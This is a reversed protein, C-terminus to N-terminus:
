YMFERISVLMIPLLMYAAFPLGRNKTQKKHVTLMDGVIMILATIACMLWALSVCLILKTGELYCACTATFIADGIGIAGGTLLSMLLIAAGPLMAKAVSWVGRGAIVGLALGMLAFTVSAKLSIQRLRVDRFASLLAYLMLPLYILKDTIFEASM